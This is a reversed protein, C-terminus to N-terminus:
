KFLGKIYKLIKTILLEKQIHIDLANQMCLPATAVTKDNLYYRVTAVTQGKAKPAYVFPPAFIKKTLSYGDVNIAVIDDRNSVVTKKGDPTFLTAVAEGKKAVTVYNVKEFANELAIIHDNWDDPAKLTVCILMIGNKKAASVLCRGAKKTFGTKVGVAYEYMSLLKNHNTLLRGGDNNNYPVRMSKTGVIQLFLKNQLATAAIIALEYATTYHDNDPLGSPNTFHTSSLGLETARQNMLKVFAPESGSVAIALATAADNGSTLMLGYLLETVTLMEGEVLYMSSGEVGCAEKPIKVKADLDARELVILATMIKTTSAMPLKKDRNVSDIVAHTSQEIVVLSQASYANAGFTICLLMLVCLFLCIIRKM